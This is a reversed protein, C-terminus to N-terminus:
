LPSAMLKQLGHWVKEPPDAWLDGHAQHKGVTGIRTPRTPGYLSMTPVGLAACLHGLGTDVAIAGQARSLLIALQKLRLAPLVLAEPVQQKIYEAFAKEAAGHWPLLASYGAATCAKAIGIWNASSWCKDARSTGHVCVVFRAPLEFPLAEEPCRLQYDPVTVQSHYQLLYAFLHCIRDIAHLDWSVAVQQHYLYSALWERCSGKAYGGVPGKAMHAVVASKILGQADIILDYPVSRLARWTQCLARQYAFSWPRRRWRRLAIPIVRKVSPHMSAIDAFGEEIIWDFAIPGVQLTAETLAPLTHVVDGLSSLKVLLVRKM